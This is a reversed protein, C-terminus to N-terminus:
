TAAVFGSVVVARGRSEFIDALCGRIRFFSFTVFGARVSLSCFSSATAAGPVFVFLVCGVLFLAPGLVLM